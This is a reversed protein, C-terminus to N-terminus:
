FSMHQMLYFVLMRSCKQDKITECPGFILQFLTELFVQRVQPCNALFTDPKSFCSPIKGWVQFGMRRCVVWQQQTVEKEYIGAMAVEFIFERSQSFTVTEEKLSGFSPQPMLLPLTRQHYKCDPVLPVYPSGEKPIPARLDVVGEGDWWAVSDALWHPLGWTITTKKSSWSIWNELM